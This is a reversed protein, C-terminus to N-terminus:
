QLSFRVAFRVRSGVADGDEQRPNLRARRAGNLAAQGFGVGEPTESLIECAALGGAPTAACTLEVVGSELGRSIAREPFEVSPPRRWSPNRIEVPGDKRTPTAAENPSFGDPSAAASADEQEPAEADLSAPDPETVPEAPVAPPLTAAALEAVRAAEAELAAADADTPAAAAASPPAVVVPWPPAFIMFGALCASAAVQLLVGAGAESREKRIAERRAGAPESPAAVRQHFREMRRGFLIWAILGWVALGIVSLIGKWGGVANPDLTLFMSDLLLAAFAAVGLGLGTLAVVIMFGSVVQGQEQRTERVIRNIADGVVDGADAHVSEAFLERIIDGIEGAPARRAEADAFRRLGEPAHDGISESILQSVWPRSGALQELAARGGEAARKASEVFSRATAALRGDIRFAEPRNGVFAASAVEGSGRVNVQHVTLRGLFEASAEGVERGPTEFRACAGAAGQRRKLLKAIPEALDGMPTVAVAPTVTVQGSFVRTVAGSAACTDCPVRGSANCRGCRVRGSSGCTGCNIAGSGGCPSCTVDHYAQNRYVSSKGRGRCSQCTMRRSGHCTRCTVQGDGSCSGCRVEASGGCGGCILEVGCPSLDQRRTKGAQWREPCDCLAAAEDDFIDRAEDDLARNADEIRSVPRGRAATWPGPLENWGGSWDWGLRIKGTVRVSLETEELQVGAADDGLVGALARRIAGIGTM